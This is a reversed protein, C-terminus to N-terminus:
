EVIEGEVVEAEPEVPSRVIHGREREELVHGWMVNAATVWDWERAETWRRILNEFCVDEIREDSTRLDEEKAPESEVPTLTKM